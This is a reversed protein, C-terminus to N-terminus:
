KYLLTFRVQGASTPTNDLNPALNTISFGFGLTLLFYANININTDAFISFIMFPTDTGVVPISAKNYIRLFASTGIAEGNNWVIINKVLTAGRKVFTANTSALSAYSLSNYGSELSFASM